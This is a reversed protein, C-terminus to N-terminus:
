GFPPMAPKRRGIQAVFRSEPLIPPSASQTAKIGYPHVSLVLGAEPYNHLWYDALGRFSFAKEMRLLIITEDATAAAAM